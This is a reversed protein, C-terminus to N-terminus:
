LARFTINMFWSSHNQVSVSYHISRLPSTLLSTRRNQTTVIKPFALVKQSFLTENHYSTSYFKIILSFSQSWLLSKFM